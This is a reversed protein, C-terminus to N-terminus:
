NNTCEQSDVFETAGPAVWLVQGDEVPGRLAPYRSMRVVNKFLSFFPFHSFFRLIPPLSLISNFFNFFCPQHVFM